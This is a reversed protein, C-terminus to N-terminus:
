NLADGETGSGQQVCESCLGDYVIHCRYVQCGQAEVYERGTLASSESPLDMIRGCSVCHFHSHDELNPDFHLTGDGVDVVTIYGNDRLMMLNRYVTGLSINPSLRKVGAHITEATPHDTRGKLWLYIAERQRSYKIAM